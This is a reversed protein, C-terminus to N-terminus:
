RRRAGGVPTRPEPVAARTVADIVTELPGRGILLAWATCGIVIGMTIPWFPELARFGELAGTSGLASAAAVAWALLQAVYATLPMAGVARIPLAVWRVPTRCALLCGAIVALAFGGSGVVELLGSSHATATWVSPFYGEEESEADFGSVQAIGAVAATVIAGVGLMRGQVKPSRLDLRGIAMGALIFALWTPFPYAWGLAAAIVEGALTSWLPADDLIAQVFPMILALAAALAALVPARLGTFPLALIFLIAYAPLIVFVPVGTVVLAIGLAWLFAARIALRGSARARAAGRQPTQGGTILAISVGALTAFLISSRGNVVDLPSSPEITLLHAALMGIVALGRALDLGEYRRPGNLRGWRSLLWATLGTAAAM